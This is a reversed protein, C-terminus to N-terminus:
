RTPYILFAIECFRKVRVNEVQDMHAQRMSPGQVRFMFPKKPQINCFRVQNNVERSLPDLSKLLSPSGVYGSTPRVRRWPIYSTPESQLYTNNQRNTWQRQQGISVPLVLFALWMKKYHFLFLCLYRMSLLLSALKVSTLLGLDYKKSSYVLM